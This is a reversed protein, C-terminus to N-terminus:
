SILNIQSTHISSISYINENSISYDSNGGAHASSSVYEIFNNKKNNTSSPKQFIKKNNTNKIPSDESFSDYSSSFTTYHTNRNKAVKKASPETDNELNELSSISSESISSSDSSNDNSADSSKDSKKKNDKKSKTEKIPKDKKTSKVPADKKSKKVSKEKQPKDSSDNSDSSSTSTTDSDDLITDKGGKLSHKNKYKQIVYNYIDSSIFSSDTDYVGGGIQMDTNKNEIVTNKNQTQNSNTFVDSSSDNLNISKLKNLLESVEPSINNNINKITSIDNTNINNWNITDTHPQSNSAGM